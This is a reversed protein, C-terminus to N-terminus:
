QMRSIRGAVFFCGDRDCRDHNRQQTDEQTSQCEKAIGDASDDVDTLRVSLSFVCVVSVFLLLGAFLPGTPKATSM